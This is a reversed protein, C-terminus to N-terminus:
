CSYAGKGKKTAWLILLITSRGRSSDQRPQHHAHLSVAPRADLFFHFQGPKHRCSTDERREDDNKSVEDESLRDDSDDEEVDVVGGCLELYIGSM